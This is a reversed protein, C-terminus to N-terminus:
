LKIPKFGQTVTFALMALWGITILPSLTWGLTQPQSLAMLIGAGSLLAAIGEFRRIPRKQLILYIGAGIITVAIGVFKLTVPVALVSLKPMIDLRPLLGLIIVNEMADAFATVVGLVAFCLWVQQGTRRFLALFFTCLFVALAVIFAFDWRTGAKVAAIFDAHDQRAGFVTLVDAKSRAFELAYIPDGFGKPYPGAEEPFASMALAALALMVAGSLFSIQWLRRETM